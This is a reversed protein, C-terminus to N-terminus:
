RVEIRRPKVEEKKNLKLHLVGDTLTAEVSSEDVSTPVTFSRQVRTYVRERLHETEGKDEKPEAKREATINLVGAELTVEIEDNKFGPLEAEVYISGDDERIDVPYTGVAESRPAGNGWRRSLMRDFEKELADFPDSWANRLGQRRITPLM